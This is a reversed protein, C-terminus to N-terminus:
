CVSTLMLHGGHPLCSTQNLIWKRLTCNAHALTVESLGQVVLLRSAGFRFWHHCSKSVSVHPTVRGLGNAALSAKCVYTVSKAMNLLANQVAGGAAWHRLIDAALTTVRKIDVQLTSRYRGTCVRKSCMATNWIYANHKEHKTANPSVLQELLQYVYILTSWGTPHRQCWDHFIDDLCPDAKHGMYADVLM